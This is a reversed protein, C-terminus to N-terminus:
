ESVLQRLADLNSPPNDTWWVLWVPIPPADRVPRQVVGPPPQATTAEATMGIAPGAAILGLWDEARRGAQQRRAGGPTGTSSTSPWPAAPSTTSGSVAAAPLADDAAAAYRQEVGLLATRLAHM